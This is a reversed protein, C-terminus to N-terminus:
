ILTDSNNNTYSRPHTTYGYNFILRLNMAKHIYTWIDNIHWLDKYVVVQNPDAHDEYSKYLLMTQHILICNLKYKWHKWFWLKDKLCMTDKM